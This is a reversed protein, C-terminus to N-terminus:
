SGSRCLLPGRGGSGGVLFGVKKVDPLVMVCDAKALVGSPVSNSKLMEQLVNNANQLTDEDKDRDGGWVTMIMLMM